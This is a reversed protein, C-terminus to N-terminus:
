GAPRFSLFKQTEQLTQNLYLAAILLLGFTYLLDAVQYDRYQALISILIKTRAVESLSARQVAEFGPLSTALVQLLAGGALLWAALGVTAWSTPAGESLAGAPTGKHAGFSAVRRIEALGLWPRFVCLIPVFVTAATWFFGYRYGRVGAREQAQRIYYMTGFFCAYIGAYGLIQTTRYFLDIFDPDNPLLEGPVHGYEYKSLLNVMTVTLWLEAAGGMVMAVGAIVAGLLAIRGTRLPASRDITHSQIAGRDSV